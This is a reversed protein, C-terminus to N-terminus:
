RRAGRSGNGLYGTHVLRASTVDSLPVTTLKQRADILSVSGGGRFSKVEGVRYPKAFGGRLSAVVHVKERSMVANQLTALVDRFHGERDRPHLTPNWSAESVSKAKSSGKKREWEAVAKCAEARSKPNWQGSANAQGSACAKKVVNVAVAIARSIDMKKEYHLHKAIREIYSPLGGAKEVWNDPGGAKRELGPYASSKVEELAFGPLSDYHDARAEILKHEGDLMFRIVARHEDATFETEEIERMSVAVVSAEEVTKRIEGIKKGCKPCKRMGKKSMAAHPMPCNGSDEAERLVAAASTSRVGLMNIARAQTLDFDTSGQAEEVIRSAMLREEAQARLFAATDGSEQAM